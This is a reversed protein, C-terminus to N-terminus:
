ALGNQILSFFTPQATEASKNDPLQWTIAEYLETWFNVLKIGCVTPSKEVQIKETVM